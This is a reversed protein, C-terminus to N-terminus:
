AVEDTGDKVHKGETVTALVKFPGSNALDPNMKAFIEMLSGIEMLCIYVAVTIFIPGSFGLDLGALFAGDAVWGVLLLGLEACKHGLGERMTTSKFDHHAVANAIGFVWDALILVLVAFIAVQAMQNDRVVAIFIDIFTPM